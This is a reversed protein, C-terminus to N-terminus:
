RIIVDDGITVYNYKVPLRSIWGKVLATKLGSRNMLGAYYIWDTTPWICNEPQLRRYFAESVGDQGHHSMQVYDATIGELIGANMLDDGVQEGMDGLIILHKGNVCIDYMLGSSNVAYAGDTLVPSNLVRFSLNDSVRVEDGAEMRDHLRGEGKSRLQETLVWVAGFEDPDAKQYWSLDAFNYYFGDIRIDNSHKDLIETLAGVHDTQPHTILWADVRGGKELITQLLHLDDDPQGGDVVVLHGDSSQIVASLQQGISGRNELFRIEGGALEPEEDFNNTREHMPAGPGRKQPEATPKGNEEALAAVAANGAAGTESLDAEASGANDAFASFATLVLVTCFVALSLSRKKIGTKM